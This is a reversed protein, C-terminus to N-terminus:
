ASVFDAPVEMTSTSVPSTEKKVTVGRPVWQNVIAGFQEVSFPKSLLGDMGNLLCDRQVSDGHQATIGIIPTRRGSSEEMERIRRACEIGDMGPLQWDMLILQYHKNQLAEMAQKGCGVVDAKLGFREALLRFIRQQTVNDEVILIHPDADLAGLFFGKTQM